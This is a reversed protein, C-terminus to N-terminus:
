GEESLYARKREGKSSLLYRCKGDECVRKVLIGQKKYRSLFVAAHLVPIDLEESLQKPTMGDTFRSLLELVEAQREGWKKVM